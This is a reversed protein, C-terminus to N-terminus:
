RNGNNYSFKQDLILESKNEILKNGNVLDKMKNCISRKLSNFKFIHSIRASLINNSYLKHFDGKFQKLYNQEKTQKEIFLSNTRQSNHKNEQHDIPLSTCSQSREFLSIVNM